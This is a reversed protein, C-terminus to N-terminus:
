SFVNPRSLIFVSGKHGRTIRIEEDIYSNRLWGSPGIFGLPINFDLLKETSTTKLKQSFLRIRCARFQVDIQIPNTISPTFGIDVTLTGRLQSVWDSFLSPISLQFAVVNRIQQNTLNISQSSKISTTATSKDLTAKSSTLETTPSKLVNWSELTDQINQPLIPNSRGQVNTTTEQVFNPNNSYVQNELPNIWSFIKQSERQSKDQTTWLLEWNGSLRQLFDENSSSSESSSLQATNEEQILELQRVTSLIQQTLDTPTPVNRPTAQLLSYLKEKTSEPNLNSSTVSFLLTSTAIQSSLSKFSSCCTDKNSDPSLYKKNWTWLRLRSGHNSISFAVILSPLFTLAYVLFFGTCM